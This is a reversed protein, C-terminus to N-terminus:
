TTTAPSRPRDPAFQQVTEMWAPGLLASPPWVVPEPGPIEVAYHPGGLLNTLLPPETLSHVLVQAVFCEFRLTHLVIRGLPSGTDGVHQKVSSFIYALNHGPGEYGAIAIRWGAPVVGAAVQRRQEPTSVRLPSCQPTVLERVVANKLLWHRMARQGDPGIILGEGDKMRLLAPKVRYELAAMWGSNCSGCLHVTQNLRPVTRPAYLDGFSMTFTGPSADRELYHRSIWEPDVHEVTDAPQGCFPCTRPVL